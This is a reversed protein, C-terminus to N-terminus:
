PTVDDSRGVKYSNDRHHDSDSPHRVIQRRAPSHANIRQHSQSHLLM